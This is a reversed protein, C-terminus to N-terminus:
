RLKKADGVLASCNCWSTAKLPFAGGRMSVDHDHDFIARTLDMLNSARRLGAHEWARLRRAGPKDCV